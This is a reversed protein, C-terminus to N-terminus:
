VNKHVTRREIVSTTARLQRLKLKMYTTQFTFSIRFSKFKMKILKYSESIPNRKEDSELPIKLVNEKRGISRARQYCPRPSSPHDMHFKISCNDRM